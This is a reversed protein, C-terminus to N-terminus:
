PPSCRQPQPRHPPIGAGRPGPLGRPPPSGWVQGLRPPTDPPYFSSAFSSIGSAIAAAKAVSPSLMLSNDRLRYTVPSFRSSLSFPDCLQRSGSILATPLAELERPSEGQRPRPRPARARGRQLRPPFKGRPPRPCRGSAVKLIGLCVPRARKVKRNDSRLTCCCGVRPSNVGRSAQKQGDRGWHRPTHCGRRRGKM